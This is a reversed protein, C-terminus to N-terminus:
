SEYNAEMLAYGCAVDMLNLLSLIENESISDYPYSRLVRRLNELESVSLIKGLEAARNQINNEM